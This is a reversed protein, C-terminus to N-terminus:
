WRWDRTQLECGGLHQLCEIQEKSFPRSGMTQLDGLRSTEGGGGARPSSAMAYSSPHM